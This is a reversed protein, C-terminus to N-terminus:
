TEVMRKRRRYAQSRCAGSCFKGDTRQAIGFPGVDFPSGCNHCLRPENLAAFMSLAESALRWNKQVVIKQLVHKIARLVIKECRKM